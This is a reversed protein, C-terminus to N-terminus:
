KTISTIQTSGTLKGNKTYSESKVVGVGPVFWEKGNINIPMGIPGIQIKFVSNYSIVFAEWTGAPTTVSEKSEVKRDTMKFTIINAVGKNEVEMKFDVDNLSQGTSMNSPYDIYASEFKAEADKYNEMQQQPMSMRADAKLVGNECKYVGSSSAVEKGKSNKFVGNVVSEYSDTNKKVEAITWTQSGSEKGKQDYVTMVVVSHDNMFLYNGCEQSLSFLPLSMFLFLLRKM